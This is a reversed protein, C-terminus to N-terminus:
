RRVHLPQRFAHGLMTRALVARAELLEEVSLPRVQEPGKAEDGAVSPLGLLQHLLREHPHPLAPVPDRGM